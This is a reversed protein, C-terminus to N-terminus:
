MLSSYAMEQQEASIYVWFAYMSAFMARVQPAHDDNCSVFFLLIISSNCAFFTPQDEKACFISAENSAVRYNELIVSNMM